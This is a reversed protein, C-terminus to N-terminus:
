GGLRRDDSGPAVFHTQAKLFHCTECAVNAAFARGFVESEVIPSVNQDRLGEFRRHRRAVPM